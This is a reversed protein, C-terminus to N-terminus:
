RTRLPTLQMLKNALDQFEIIPNTLDDYVNGDYFLTVRRMTLFASEQSHYKESVARVLETVSQFDQESLVIEERARVTRMFDRRSIDCHNRSIGYYSILTGDNNLVFYYARNNNGCGGGEFIALAMVLNPNQSQCGTIILLIVISAIFFIKKIM